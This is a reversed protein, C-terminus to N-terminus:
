ARAMLNDVIEIHKPMGIERYGVAAATLLQRARERDGPGNREILMQGYFRRAEFQEMRVPVEDALKLAKKYHAEAADWSGACSAALGALTELLRFDYFRAIAGQKIWELAVPYLAAARAREGAVAFMELAGLAYVWSTRTNVKDVTAFQDRKAEILDVAEAGRGLYALCMWLLAANGGLAGPVERCAAEEHYGVAEDWRGRWFAMLGKFTYSDSSWPMGISTQFEMDKQIFHECADLNATRNFDCVWELTRTGFLHARVNGVRDAIAVSEESYRGGDDIRGSWGLVTAWFGLADSLYWLDGENRFHTVAQEGYEAGSLFRGAGFNSLTLMMSAFGLLRQDGSERALGLAEDLMPEATDYNGMLSWVIGAQALLRARDPTVRDGLAALGRMAVQASEPFRGLLSLQSSVDAALRAVAPQDGLSEYLQLARDWTAIGEELRALSRQAMGLQSLLGALASQDEAPQLQTAREFHVLADAFATAELARAGALGLYRATKAPDAADGAHYLHHAVDAVHEEAIGLHEMAEATRLHLRQRRPLAQGSLLTQRFLEHSFTLGRAPGKQSTILAAREAKDLATLIADSENEGLAELLEFTFGRGIVAAAVLVRRATKDLRGLRREIVLRVSDPVDVEGIQVNAYFRGDADLLRGDENLYRLVEEVFFPNGETEDYIASVLALPPAQGVVATIISVTEDAPLPKLSIRHALRRQQLADLMEAFPQGMDLEVDRYTGILFVPMEDIEEALHRVALLTSDDAWHIDDISIFQPRLASARRVFSRLGNLLYRREAEPPLRLPEPVDPFMNRLRPVIRAIEGADEGLLQRYVDPPITGAASELMEVFPTYPPAGQMDYCRGFRTRMGRQEAELRLEDALRTKGVGPEGGLFVIAGHGARARDLLAVLQGREPKRGVFPTRRTVTAAPTEKRWGVEYLQRQDPFGKLVFHGRDRFTIGVMTGALQRVVDAALIEGGQARAMVRAAANVVEGSVDGNRETAEGANLGIRVRVPSGELTQQIGVACSVAARVSDFAAMFSDGTVQVSWGNHWAIQARLVEDHASFLNHAADDGLTTRMATSGEVDTFLIAVILQRSGRAGSSVEASRDPASTPM